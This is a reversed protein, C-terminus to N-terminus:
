AVSTALLEVKYRPTSSQQVNLEVGSKHYLEVETDYEFVTSLGPRLSSSSATVPQQPKFTSAMIQNPCTWIPKLITGGNAASFFWGLTIIMDLRRTVTRSGVQLEWSGANAVVLVLMARDMMKRMTTAFAWM